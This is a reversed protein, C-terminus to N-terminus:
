SNLIIASGPVVIKKSFALQIDRDCQALMGEEWGMKTVYQANTVNMAQAFVAYAHASHQSHHKDIFAALVGAAQRAMGANMVFAFMERGYQAIVPWFEKPIDAPGEAGNLPTTEIKTENGSDNM